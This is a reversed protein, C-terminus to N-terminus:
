IHILSLGQLLKLKPFIIYHQYLEEICQQYFMTNQNNKEYLSQLSMLIMIFIKNIISQAQEQSLHQEDIVQEIKKINFCDGVLDFEQLSDNTKKQDFTVNHAYKCFLLYQNKDLNYKNNLYDLLIIFHMSLQKQLSFKESSNFNLKGNILNDLYDGHVRRQYQRKYVDSAASSICHTSRPPRRIM